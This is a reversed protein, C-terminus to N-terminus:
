HERDAGRDLFHGLRLVLELGVHLREVDALDAHVAEELHQGRAHTVNSAVAALMLPPGGALLPDDMGGGVGVLHNHREGAALEVVELQIGGALQHLKCALVHAILHGAEVHGRELGAAHLSAEQCHASSVVGNADEAEEWVVTQLAKCDLRQGAERRGDADHLHFVIRTVLHQQQVDAHVVADKKAHDKVADRALEVVDAPAEEAHAGDAEQLYGNGALRRHQREARARPQEVVVLLAEDECREGIDAALILDQGREVVARAKSRLLAGLAKHRDSAVRQTDDSELM